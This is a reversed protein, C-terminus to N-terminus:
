YSVLWALDHLALVNMLHFELISCHQDAIPTTNVHGLKRVTSVCISFYREIEITRILLLSLFVTLIM